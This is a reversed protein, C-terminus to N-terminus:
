IGDDDEEETIISHPARKSIKKGSKAKSLGLGGGKRRSSKKKLLQNSDLEDEENLMQRDHKRMVDSQTVVEPIKMLTGKKM